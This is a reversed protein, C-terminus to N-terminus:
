PVTAGLWAAIAAPGDEFLKRYALVKAAGAAMARKRLDVDDHNALALVPVGATHWRAIVALGDTTRLALDVIVGDCPEVPLAATAGLRVPMGGAREVADALRTSWILDDAIM